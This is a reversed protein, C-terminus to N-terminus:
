STGEGGDNNAMKQNLEAIRELLKTQKAAESDTQQYQAYGGGLQWGKKIYQDPANNESGGRVAASLDTSSTMIELKKKQIEKQYEPSNIREQRKEQEAQTDTKQDPSLKEIAISDSINNAKDALGKVGVKEGIWNTMEGFPKKEKNKDDQQILGISQGFSNVKDLAGNAVSEGVGKGVTGGLLGLPNTLAQGINMESQMFGGLGKKGELGKITEAALKLGPIGINEALMEKLESWGRKCDKMASNFEKASKISAEDMKGMSSVVEEFAASGDNLMPLLSTGGKGFLDMSVAARKAPDDLDALGKCLETFQQQPKLDKIQQSSLGIEALALQYKKSMGGTAGINKQMIKFSTGLSDVSVGSQHAAKALQDLESIPIGTQKSVRGLEKVDALYEETSDILIKWGAAVAATGMSAASLGMNGSFEPLKLGSMKALDNAFNNTNAKMDALVKKFSGSDGGFKCVVDSAIGM